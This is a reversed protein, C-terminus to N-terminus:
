MAAAPSVGVASSWSNGGVTAAAATVPAPSTSDIVSGRNSSVLGTASAHLVITKNNGDATYNVVVNGDILIGTAATTANQIGGTTAFAGFIRNGGIVISDGGVIKIASEVGATAGGHLDCDAVILRDASATTLIGLVAQTSSDGLMFECGTIKVDAASVNVMATQADIANVFALNQLVVNAASVNFSAATSTGFTFTPRNRGV